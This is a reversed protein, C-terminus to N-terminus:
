YVYNVCKSKKKAAVEQQESQKLGKLNSNGVAQGVFSSARILPNHRNLTNCIESVSSRYSSFIMVKSVEDPNLDSFHKLLVGVLTDMKPHGSFNPKQMEQKLVSLMRLISPHESFKSQAKNDRYLGEMHEVFSVIGYQCLLDYARSMQEAVIFMTITQYKFNKNMDTNKFQFSKRKTQIGYSTNRAAEPLIGTAPLKSLQQLIPEYVQSTYEDIIQPLIGTSDKTYNLSVTFSEINKSYSYERVDMSDETRIQITSINLNTIVSQVAKLSSGPTATLALVRYYENKKSLEQIVKVYAYNGTARHAEDVVICVIKEIPCYHNKIDNYVTEPTSFFVRKTKWLDRRKVPTDQGSIRVTDQLPLGCITFCAETQQTVLPRTPAMFIIKSNPYWRWHNFMVVAAIFTKGLGTPLAVLTNNFLAKQIINLQYGRIPYNIPYIWTRLNEVNLPHFSKTHEPLAPPPIPDDIPIFSINNTAYEQEVIETVQILENANLDDGFEDESNDETQQVHLKEQTSLSSMNNKDM